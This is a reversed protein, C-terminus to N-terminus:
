SSLEHEVGRDILWKDFNEKQKQNFKLRYSYWSYDETKSAQVERPKPEPQLSQSAVMAKAKEEWEKRELAKQNVLDIIGVLEVEDLNGLDSVEIPAILNMQASTSECLTKAMEVKQKRLSELQEEQKQMELLANARHNLDNKTDAEKQTKNLYKDQITLMAKHKESLELNDAIEDIWTEIQKTQEQKRNEEFVSTQQKIGDQVEIVLNKIENVQDEFKSINVSAAKKKDKRYDDFKKALGGLSRQVKEAFAMNEETVVMNKYKGLDNLIFSKVEEYPFPIIAPTIESETIKLAAEDISALTDTMTEEDIKGEKYLTMVKGSNDEIPRIEM